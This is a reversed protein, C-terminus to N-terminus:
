STSRARRLLRREVVGIIWRVEDVRLLWALGVFAASMVVGIVTGLLIAMVRHSWILGEALQVLGTGLAWAVLGAALLKAFVIAGTRIDPPEVDLKAAQRRLMLLGVTWAVLNGLSTAGAAAMAAWRPDVVALIVPVSLLTIAAIPIQM